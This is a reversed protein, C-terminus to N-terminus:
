VMCVRIIINYAGEKEPASFLSRPTATACRSAGLAAKRPPELSQGPTHPKRGRKFRIEQMLQRYRGSAEHKIKAIESTLKLAAELKRYCRRCISDPLGDESSVECGFWVKIRSRLGSRIAEVSFIKYRQGGSIEIWCTRCRNEILSPDLFRKPTDAM